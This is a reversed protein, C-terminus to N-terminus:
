CGHNKTERTLLKIEEVLANFTIGKSDILNAMVRIAPTGRNKGNLGSVDRAFVACHRAETLDKFQGSPRFSKQTKYECTYYTANDIIYQDKERQTPCNIALYKAVDYLIEGTANM